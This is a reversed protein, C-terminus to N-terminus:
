LNVKTLVVRQLFDCSYNTVGKSKVKSVEGSTVEFILQKDVLEYSATLWSKEVKFSSYMKNGFVYNTLLVGDGEDMWFENFQNQNQRLTYNKTMPMKESIYETRWIWVGAENLMPQVTFVIGVSDVLTGKSWIYMTGKWTGECRQPFPQSSASTISAVLLFVILLCNKM